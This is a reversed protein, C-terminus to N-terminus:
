VPRMTTIGSWCDLGTLPRRMQAAPSPGAMMPEETRGHDVNQHAADGADDHLGVIGPPQSRGTPGPPRDPLGHRALPQMLDSRVDRQVYVARAQYNPVGAM